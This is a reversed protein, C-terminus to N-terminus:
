HDETYLNKRFKRVLKAARQYHSATNADVYDRLLGKGTWEYYGPTFIAEKSGPISM